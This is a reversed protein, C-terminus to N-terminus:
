KKCAREVEWKPEFNLEAPNRRWSCPEAATAAVSRRRTEASASICVGKGPLSVSPCPTETGRDSPLTLVQALNSKYRNLFHL